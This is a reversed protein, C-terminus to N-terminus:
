LVTSLLLPVFGGARTGSPSCADPVVRSDVVNPVSKRSDYPPFHSYFSHLLKIFYSSLQIHSEVPYLHISSSRHALFLLILPEIPDHFRCVKGDEIPGPVVPIPTTERALSKTLKVTDDALLGKASTLLQASELLATVKEVFFTEFRPSHDFEGIGVAWDTM